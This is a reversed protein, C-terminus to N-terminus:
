LIAELLKYGTFGVFAGVLITDIILALIAIIHVPRM